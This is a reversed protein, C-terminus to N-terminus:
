GVDWFLVIFFEMIIPNTEVLIIVNCIIFFIDKFNKQDKKANERKVRNQDSCVNCVYDNCSSLTKVTTDCNNVFHTKTSGCSGAAACLHPESYAM